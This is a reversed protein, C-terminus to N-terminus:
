IFKGWICAFYTHTHVFFKGSNKFYNKRRNVTETATKYKTKHIWFLSNKGCYKHTYRKSYISTFSIMTLTKWSFFSLYFLIIVISPIISIFYIKKQKFIKSWSKKACSSYEKQKKNINIRYHHYENTRNQLVIKQTLIQNQVNEIVFSM